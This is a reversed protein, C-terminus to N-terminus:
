PDPQDAAVRRARDPCQPVLGAPGRLAHEHTKTAHWVRAKAPLPLAEDTAEATRLRAARDTVVRYRGGRRGLDQEVCYAAGISPACIDRALKQACAQLVGRNPRHPEVLVAVRRSRGFHDHAHVGAVADGVDFLELATPDHVDDAVSSAAVAM